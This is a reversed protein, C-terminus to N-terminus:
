FALGLVIRGRREPAQGLVGFAFSSSAWFRGRGYSLAPGASYSSSRSGDSAFKMSGLAEAGLRLGGLVEYSAGFAHNLYKDIGGAPFGMWTGVNLTLDLPGFSRSVIGLLWVSSSEGPAVPHGYELRLRLDVPWSAKDALQYSVQARLSGLALSASSPSAPTQKFIGFFGVELRDTIGAVPGLWWDWASPGGNRTAASFWSELEISGESLSDFGQTYVYPRAGAKAARPLLALACAAVVIGASPFRRLSKRPVVM